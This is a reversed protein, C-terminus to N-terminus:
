TEAFKPLVRRVRINGLKVQRPSRNSGESLRYFAFSAGATRLRDLRQALVNLLPMPIVFFKGAFRHHLLDFELM